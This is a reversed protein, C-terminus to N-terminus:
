QFSFDERDLTLNRNYYPDGADITEAWRMRLRDREGMFRRHKEFTNEYGRSKSEYHYLEAYPTWVILYGAERIRLCLDVDNFAVAFGEDLGGVKEWVRRPIMCCAGTVGSLNQALSLRLMYGYHGRRFGKHSHGATGGIGMILGAHQITDDPYYLMAGVAGVDSRQAFMLMQELWGHTIVEIDNNLLVIYDGRAERVGFNCISSFNFDGKWTVIRINRRHSLTRYYDFTAQERSNNEVVIIEWNRWSSRTTISHICKKLDEAHDMNPIVISILPEGEIKYQIRYTSPFTSDKVQGKLGVRNLHEALAAKGAKVTYPKASVGSAVSASHSRWYYLVKPIHVIRRAVETLRLVMDFDQSGDFQSRFVGVEDLLSHKFVTLHCIYNYSRLTDPAFDPKFHSFYADSPENHFTSEDSYIFDADQECIAKINEYLASPHLMDDHDFLAIYDGTSMEICANTNGSIGLNKELKKYKIRGDKQAYERCIDGVSAYQDESGDALCLEWKEYTQGRVSEIMQRLFNGPTNYLPVLISFKVDKSFTEGHQRSCEEESPWTDAMRYLGPDEADLPQQEESNDNGVSSTEKTTDSRLRPSGKKEPLQKIYDLLRRAPGTVRWFFANSITQFDLKLQKIEANLAEIHVDKENNQAHLEQVNREMLPIQVNLMDDLYDISYNNKRYQHPYMYRRNEGHVQQQFHDEMRWFVEIAEPTFGFWGLMEEVPVGNLQAHAQTVYLYLLIRYRIFDIPVPFQCVWEHDICFVGQDNEIFNSLLSDINAPKVAPLQGPDNEGFQDKFAETMEFPVIYEEGFSLVRDLKGNVRAVFDERGLGQAGIQEDLTQGTVYPFVVGEEGQESSIMAIDRYYNRLALGNKHINDLHLRAAVGDARKRVFKGGAGECVETTVRYEHARTSNFKAYLIRCAQESLDTGEADCFVLFSNAFIEFKQDQILEDMVKKEDFYSYRERDYNPANATDPYSKPFYLHSYIETPMKYDPFPYYFEMSSLGATRLLQELGEKSFTRVRKVYPYGMLGDGLGGTHDERAGAWYKIGFKNEIAIILKGGPKLFSKARRIMEVFPDESNIYYISYELVGILTVYDFKEEIKIDELNGVILELNDANKHRCANIMSRRRSLDIAVVRDCKKCFLGTVAGCGAGIELLSKGEGFDYWELLNERIPSLHYLLTWDRSKMLISEYDDNERVINLLDEESDGDSYQDSGKYFRYDLRVGGIHEIGQDAM